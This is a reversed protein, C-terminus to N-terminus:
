STLTTHLPHAFQGLFPNAMKLIALSGSAAAEATESEWIHTQEHCPAHAQPQYDASGHTM